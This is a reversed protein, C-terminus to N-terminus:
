GRQPVAPAFTKEAQVWTVQQRFGLRENIAWIPRNLSDNATVLYRYGRDRAFVVARRKLESAIGLGRYEPHTGTFGVLLTDPRAKERELSSMGVFESGKRAVFTGEPISGPGDLDFAAFEEFTVPTFEGLRPIDAAALTSLRYLGKRVQPDAAGEEQVTSFRIGRDSLAKSRDPVGGLNATAVDLRSLWTKRRPVFGQQALFRVSRTDDDRASSWLCLVSRAVAERELLAYLEKGIGQHRHAIEVGLGVWFKQPHYSSGSHQLAGYAVVANSSRDEVVFKLNLRGPVAAGAETWHRIEEATHAFEPDVEFDIRAEAEYDPDVFSRVSYVNRDM